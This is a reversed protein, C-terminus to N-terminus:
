SGVEAVPIEMVFEEHDPDIRILRPSSNHEILSVNFTANRLGMWDGLVRAVTQLSSHDVSSLPPPDLIRYHARVGAARELLALVDLIHRAIPDAALRSDM